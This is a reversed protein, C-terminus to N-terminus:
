PIGARNAPVIKRQGTTNLIRIDHLLRTEANCTGPHTEGPLPPIDCCPHATQGVIVKGILQECSSDTVQVFFDPGKNDPTGYKAALGPYCAVAHEAIARGHLLYGNSEGRTEDTSPSSSLTGDSRISTAKCSAVKMKVLSCQKETCKAYASTSVILLIVLASIKMTVTRNM